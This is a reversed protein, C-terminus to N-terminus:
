LDSVDRNSRQSIENAENCGISNGLACARAFREVAELDDKRGDQGKLLMYGLLVCANADNASCKDALEKRSHTFTACSSACILIIIILPLPLSRRNATLAKKM